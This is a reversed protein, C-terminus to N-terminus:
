KNRRRVYVLIGLFGVFLPIVFITINRILIASGDSITLKAQDLSKSTVTFVNEKGSLKNIMTILYNANDYSSSNGAVQYDFLLSSGFAILSSKYSDGGSFFNQEALM